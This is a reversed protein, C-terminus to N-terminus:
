TVRERHIKSESPIAMPPAPKIVGGVMDALLQVTKRVVPSMVSQRLTQPQIGMLWVHVGREFEIMRALTGLSIKHTSVQPFRSQMEASNLLAVAGPEGGFDCADVLLINKFDLRALKLALEEPRAGAVFVNACGAAQLAEAVRVGAGDDGHAPNGVGVVAAHGRLIARLQQSLNRM